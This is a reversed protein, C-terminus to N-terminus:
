NMIYIYEAGYNNKIFEEQIDVIILINEKM